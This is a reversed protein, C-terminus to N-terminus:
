IKFVRGPTNKETPPGGEERMKKFYIHYTITPVYRGGQKKRLLNQGRGDRIFYIVDVKYGYNRDLKYYELRKKQSPNTADVVCNATKGMCNKLAKLVKKFTKLKDQNIHEYGKPKFYLNYYTTKGSGPMGVFVVLSKPGYIDIKTEPFLKEPTLITIDKSLVKQGNEAFKKDSDSFDQPRGLADGCFIIEKMDPIVNKLVEWMGAKPKRFNDKETSIFAIIPLGLKIMFNYVRDVKKQKEKKSRAFQNTFLVITYGSKFINTLIKKRQPMIHIDEPNKPFLAEESYALTWDMDFAAIYNHFFAVKPVSYFLSNNIQNFNQVPNYFTSIDMNELVIRKQHSNICKLFKPNKKFM